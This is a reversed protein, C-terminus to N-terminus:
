GALGGALLAVAHQLIDDETISSRMADDQWRSKMALPLVTLGVLSTFILMPELKSNIRGEQQWRRLTELMLSERKAGLRAKVREHLVPDESIMERIWFPGFWAHEVNLTMLQRAFRTMTALPDDPGSEFVGEFYARVPLIREELLADLLQEKTKFYYHAASPTIGAEKTIAAMTVYAAGQRSLLSQGIDLLRERQNEQGERLSPRGPRRPSPSAERTM